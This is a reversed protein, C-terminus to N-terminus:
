SNSRHQAGKEHDHFLASQGELTQAKNILCQCTTCWLFRDGRLVYTEGMLERWQADDVADRYESYQSRLDIYCNSYYLWETVAYLSNSISQLKSKIPFGHFQDCEKLHEEFQCWMDASIPNNYVNWTTLMRLMWEKDTLPRLLVTLYWVYHSDFTSSSLAEVLYESPTVRESPSKPKALFTLLPIRRQEIM